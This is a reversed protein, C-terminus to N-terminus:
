DNKDKIVPVNTIFKTMYKFNEILPHLYCDERVKLQVIM